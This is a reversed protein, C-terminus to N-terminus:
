NLRCDAPATVTVVGVNGFAETIVILVLPPAPPIVMLEEVRPPLEVLAMDSILEVPLIVPLEDRFVAAAPVKVKCVLLPVIPVAEAGNVTFAPLTLAVDLEPNTLKFAELTPVVATPASDVVPATVSM